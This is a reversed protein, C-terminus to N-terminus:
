GLSISSLPLYTNVITGNETSTISVEGNHEQVIQQIRKLGDAQKTATKDFGKGTDHTVLQLNEDEFAVISTIYTAESYSSANHLGENLISLIHYSNLPSFQLDNKEPFNIKFAADANLTTKYLHQIQKVTEYIDITSFYLTATCQNHILEQASSKISDPKSTLQEHLQSILHHEQQLRKKKNQQLQQAISYDKRELSKLIEIISWGLLLGLFIYTIFNM